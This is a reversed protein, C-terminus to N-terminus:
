TEMARAEKKRHLGEDAADRAWAGASSRSFLFVVFPANAERVVTSSRYGRQWFFLSHNSFFFFSIAFIAIHWEKRTRTKKQPQATWRRPVAAAAAARHPRL